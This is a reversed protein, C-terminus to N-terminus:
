PSPASRTASSGPSRRLPRARAVSTAWSSRGGTRRPEFVDYFDGEVLIGEGAPLYKAAVEVGAPQLLTSPLLSEQLTRAITDREEYLLQKEIAVTAMSSLQTLVEQDGPTFTGATPCMVQVRGIERRDRGRLPAALPADTPEAVAGRAMEDSLSESSATRPGSELDIRSRHAGVLERAQAAVVRLVEDLDPATNVLMWAQTLGFLQAAQRHQAAVVTKVEALRAADDIVLAARHALEEGLDREADGYAPRGPGVALAVTGLVAGRAALPLLLGAALGLRAADAGLITGLDPVLVGKDPGCRRPGSTAVREPPWRGSLDWLAQEAGPDRHAVAARHVTGDADCTSPIVCADALEPVMAHALGELVSRVDLDAPMWASARDLDDLRRRREEDADVSTAGDLVIRAWM